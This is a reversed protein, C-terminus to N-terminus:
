ATRGKGLWVCRVLSRVVAQWWSLQRTILEGDVKRSQLWVAVNCVLKSLRTSMETASHVCFIYAVDM